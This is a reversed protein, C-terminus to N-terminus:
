DALKRARQAGKPRTAGIASYDIKGGSSAARDATLRPSTTAAISYDDDVYFYRGFGLGAALLLAALLAFKLRGLLIRLDNM